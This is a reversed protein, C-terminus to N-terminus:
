GSHYCSTYTRQGVLHQLVVDEGPQEGEWVHEDCRVLRQQRALRQCVDGLGSEGIRPGEFTTFPQDVFDAGM